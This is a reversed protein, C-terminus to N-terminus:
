LCAVLRPSLVTFSFCHVGPCCVYLVIRGFCFFFIKWGYAEANVREEM